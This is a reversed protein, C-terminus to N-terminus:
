ISKMLKKTTTWGWVDERVGDLLREVDVWCGGLPGSRIVGVAQLSKWSSKWFYWCFTGGEIVSYEKTVKAGPEKNGKSSSLGLRYTKFVSTAPAHVSLFFIKWPPDKKFNASSLISMWFGSAWFRSSLPNQSFTMKRGKGWSFVVKWHGFTTESAMNGVLLPYIKISFHDWIKTEPMPLTWESLSSFDSKWSGSTFTFSFIAQLIDNIPRYHQFKKQHSM